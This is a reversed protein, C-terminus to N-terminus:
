TLSKRSQCDNLEILYLTVGRHQKAGLLQLLVPCLVQFASARAEVFVLKVILNAEMGIQLVLPQLGAIVGILEIIQLFALFQQNHNIFAM